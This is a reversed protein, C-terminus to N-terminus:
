AFKKRIYVHEKTEAIELVYKIDSEPILSSILKIIAKKTKNSIVIEARSNKFSIKKKTFLDCLDPIINPYGKAISIKDEVTVM